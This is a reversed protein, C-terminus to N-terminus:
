TQFLLLVYGSNIEALIAAHEPDDYRMLEGDEVQFGNRWFTLHRVVVQDTTVIYPTFLRPLQPLRALILPLPMRTPFSAAQLTMVASPIAEALSRRPGQPMKPHKDAETHFSLLFTKLSCISLLVFEQARRLLERVMDGGPVRSGGPRASEPNQINIGSSSTTM